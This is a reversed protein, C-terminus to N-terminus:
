ILPSFLQTTSVSEMGGLITSLGELRGMAGVKDIQESMDSRLCEKVFSVLSFNDLVSKMCSMQITNGCNLSTNKSVQGIFYSFNCSIKLIYILGFVSPDEALM